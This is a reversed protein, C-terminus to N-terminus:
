PGVEWRLSVTGGNGWGWEYLNPTVSACLRQSPDLRRCLSLSARLTVTAAIQADVDTFGKGDAVSTPMALLAFGPKLTAEVMWRRKKFRLGVGLIEADMVFSGAPHFRFISGDISSLTDSYLGVAGYLGIDFLPLIWRDGGVFDLGTRVGFFGMPVQLPPTSGTITSRASNSLDSASVSPADASANPLYSGAGEVWLTGVMGWGGAHAAPAAAIVAALTAVCLLARAHV